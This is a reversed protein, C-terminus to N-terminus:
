LHSIPFFFKGGVLFTKLNGKKFFKKKIKKKYFSRKKLFIFVSKIQPLCEPHNVYLVTGGKFDVPTRLIKKDFEWFDATAERLGRYCLFRLRAKLEPSERAFVKIYENSPQFINEVFWDIFKKQELAAFM